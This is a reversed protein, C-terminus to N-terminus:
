QQIVQKCRMPVTVAAADVQEPTHSLLLAGFAEGTRANFSQLTKM